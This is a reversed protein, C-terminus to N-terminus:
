RTCPSPSSQSSRATTDRLDLARNRHTSASPPEPGARLQRTAPSLDTICSPITGSLRSLKRQRSIKAGPDVCIPQLAVGGAVQFSLVARCTLSTSNSSRFSRIRIGSGLVDSAKEGSSAFGGILDSLGPSSTTGTSLRLSPVFCDVLVPLALSAFDVPLVTLSPVSCDTLLPSSCGAAWSAAVFFVLLSDSSDM